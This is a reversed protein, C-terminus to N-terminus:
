RHSIGERRIVAITNRFDEKSMDALTREDCLKRLAAPRIIDPHEALKARIHAKAPSEPRPRGQRAKAREARLQQIHDAAASLRDTMFRESATSPRTPPCVRVPKQDPKYKVGNLIMSVPQAGPAIIRIRQVGSHKRPASKKSVSM